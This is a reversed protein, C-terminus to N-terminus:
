IGLVAQVGCALRMLGVLMLLSSSDCDMELQKDYREIWALIKVWVEKSANKSLMIRAHTYDDLHGSKISFEEFQSDHHTFLRFFQYCGVSPAIMKDGYACICYIPVSINKILIKYDVNDLRSDFKKNLNWDFWLKMTHYNEDAVGLRLSRAPVFGIIKTLYKFFLLRMYAFYNYSAGFAQCAVLTMTKIYTCFNPYRSLFIALGIGGGSHTIAHIHKVGLEYRLYDFTAKIDYLAITEFDFLQNTKDSDGHNRWELIYCTYGNNTLFIQWDQAFEKIQFHEM